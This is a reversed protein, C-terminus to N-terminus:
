QGILEHLGSRRWSDRWLVGAEGPTVPLDASRAFPEEQTLDHVIHNTNDQPVRLEHSVADLAASRM